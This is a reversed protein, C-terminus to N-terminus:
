VLDHEYAYATAAARNSVNVKSLINSVHRAVTKESIFLQEGIERNTKGSAVLRIVELERETLGGASTPADPARRERVRTLDPTAGLERFTRRAADLEMDALDRDGIERCASALLVRTRAIRYPAQVDQWMRRANRLPDLADRAKGEALCVTGRAQLARAHLVPADLTKAFSSLKESARRAAEVDGAAQMIEVHAPLLHCRRARDQAEDVARRSAAEADEVRGQSLRLLALGPDPNRGWSNAERYAEEAPGYGGQLRHLEAVRYFASGAAPEGSERLLLECARQASEAAETWAGHLQLIEARYVLCQGNFPVLGQQSACWDRLATTWEQARRVDFLEMSGEIVSCYVDGVVLPSLEGSQAAAMAEDLLAVGGRIDGMRIRVRGRSHRALASLDRDAYEDGIEEARRFAAYAAEVDGDTLRRFADHLLLYGWEVCDRGERDLLRRARAIWGSARARKGRNLLGFIFWAVCQVADKVAGQDLFSTHARIWIETSEAYEGVLYAATALRELEEPELSSESDAASLDNYADAWRNQDFAQRGANRLDQTSM